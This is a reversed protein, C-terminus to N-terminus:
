LDNIIKIKVATASLGRDVVAPLTAAVVLKGSSSETVTVMGISAVKDVSAVWVSAGLVSSEVALELDAEERVVVRAAAVDASELTVTFMAAFRPLLLHIYPLQSETIRILPPRRM